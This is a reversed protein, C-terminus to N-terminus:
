YIDNLALAILLALGDNDGCLYKRFENGDACGSFRKYYNDLNTLSDDIAGCFCDTYKNRLFTAVGSGLADEIIDCRESKGNSIMNLLTLLFMRLGHISTNEM